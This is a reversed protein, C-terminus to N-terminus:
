SRPPFDPAAPSVPRVVLTLGRAETVVVRAGADLTGGDPLTARWREGNVWVQGVPALPVLVEAERGVLAAAGTPPGDGLAHRYLPYLLADKLLWLGLCLVVTDRTIWGVQLALYLVIVVLLFEPLQVLAYRAAVPLRM